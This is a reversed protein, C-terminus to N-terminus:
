AFEVIFLNVILELILVKPPKHKPEHGLKSVTINVDPPVASIPCQENLPHLFNCFKSKLPAEIKRADLKAQHM